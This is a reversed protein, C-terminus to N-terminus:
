GRTEIAMISAHEPRTTSTPNCRLTRGTTTHWQLAITHAAASLVDTVFFIAGGEIVTWQEAGMKQVEVGDVTLRLYDQGGSGGNNSTSFSAYIELRSSGGTTVALTLLDVYTVSTTTTAVALVASATQIIGGGSPAKPYLPV